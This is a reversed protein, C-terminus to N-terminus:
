ISTVNSSIWVLTGGIPDGLGADKAFSSINFKNPNTTWNPDQSNLAALYTPFSAPQRYALIVYRHNGTGIWPLPRNYESLVATTNHVEFIPQNWVKDKGTNLNQGFTYYDASLFNRFSRSIPDERRPSDLNLMTILYPGQAPPDQGALHGPDPLGVFYVRTFPLATQNDFLHEAFGPTYEGGSQPIPWTVKVLIQPNFNISLNAQTDYFFKKVVGLTENFLPDYQTPGRKDLQLHNSAPAVPSKSPYLYGPYKDANASPTLNLIYMVIILSTIVFTKSIKTTM